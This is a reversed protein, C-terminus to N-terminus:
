ELCVLEGNKLSIFLKGSAGAAIITDPTLVMARIMISPNITWTQRGSAGDIALLKGSEQNGPVFTTRHAWRSFAQFAYASTKDGVVAQGRTTGFLLGTRHFWIDRFMLDASILVHGQSSRPVGPGGKQPEAKPIVEVGDESITIKSMHMCYAEEDSVLVDSLLGPPPNIPLQNGTEDSRHQNLVKGTEPDLVYLYMGGDLYSTRGAAIVAKNEKVLVTGHVPWVSELQGFSFLRRERPAARFRWALTGQAADLCYVYGDASGFLVKGRHITPSTDVRGGCTYSWITKGTAADLGHVTHSDTSALFARGDAIVPQTLRGGINASWAPKLNAPVTTNSMGSRAPDHRYMPWANADDGSAVTKGFAPGKELRPGTDTDEVKSQDSAMALMGNLKVEIYCACPHPTIYSLGNCPLMGIRCGARLWPMSSNEGSVLDIVQQPKGRITTWHTGETAKAPYCRMHGVSATAAETLDITRKVDGTAPDLGVFTTKEVGHTWLLDQAVFLASFVTGFIKSGHKGSWLLKGTEASIADLQGAPSLVYVAGSQYIFSTNALAPRRTNKRKKRRRSAPAIDQRPRTSLSHSWEARGTEMDLAIVRSQTGLTKVDGKELFFLRKEGAMIRFDASFWGSGYEASEWLINGTALDLAKFVHSADHGAEKKVALFLRDKYCILETTNETEEDTRLGEGTAGDLVSVPANFGLTVYVKDGVAVLRRHMQKPNSNRGVMVEESWAKWGFNNMSKKWLPVGSFADSALLVWEDPIALVSDKVEDFVM